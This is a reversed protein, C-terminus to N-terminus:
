FREALLRYCWFREDTRVLERIKAPSFGTIRKVERGMHSQDAYGMDAAIEALDGGPGREYTLAFLAEIRAHLDLELQSHGTWAKVRRQIQRASRGFDSLAARAALSRTWDRVWYPPRGDHPRTRRWLPEIEDQLRAWAEESEAAGGFAADFLALTEAGVVRELPVIQEVVDSASAGTLDRWADPYFGISMAYIPGPSWSVIPHAFAGCLALRPFPESTPRGALDVLRLEGEFIWNVTCLTSAPFFSYREEPRLRARRTDRVFAGFILSALNARPHLLWARREESPLAGASRDDGGNM